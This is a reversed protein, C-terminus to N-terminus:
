VTRSIRRGVAAALRDPSGAAQALFFSPEALELELVLPHGDAGPVLDVRAYLLLDACADLAARAVDQEAATPDRPTIEEPAFFEDTPPADLALIPAKHFGHSLEGDFFVLGTEGYTDIAHQYPQVIVARGTALLDRAHREASRPDSHRMADKSGASITPKVVLEGDGSLQPDPGGPEFLQTPVVPVRREALDVLYHKDTSWRVVSSPNQVPVLRETAELWDLFEHYRPVYDWTSRIVALDFDGWAVDPDDWCPAEARVGSRHLADLLLELDVDTGLAARATVLAVRAVRVEPDSVDL